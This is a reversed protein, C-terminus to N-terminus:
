KTRWQTQTRAQATCDSAVDRRKRRRQKASKASLLVLKDARQRGGGLPNLRAVVCEFTPVDASFVCESLFDRVCRSLFFVINNSNILLVTSHQTLCM